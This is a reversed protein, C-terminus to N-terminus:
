PVLAELENKISECYTNSSLQTGRRYCHPSDSLTANAFQMYGDLEGDLLFFRTNPQGQMWSLGLQRRDSLVHTVNLSENGSTQTLTASSGVRESNEHRSIRHYYTARPESSFSSTSMDKRTAQLEGDPVGNKMTGESRGTVKTATSFDPSLFSFDYSYLAVFEGQLKRQDCTGSIIRIEPASETRTGHQAENRLVQERGEASMQFMVWARTDADLDCAIPQVNAPQLYNDVDNNARVRLREEYEAAQESPMEWLEARSTGATRYEELARQM